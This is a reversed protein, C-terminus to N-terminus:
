NEIIADDLLFIMNAVSTVQLEGTAVSWYCFM